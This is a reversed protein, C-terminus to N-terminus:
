FVDTTGSPGRHILRQGEGSFFSPLLVEKDQVFALYLITIFIIIHESESAALVM